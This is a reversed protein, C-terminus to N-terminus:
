EQFRISDSVIKWVNNVSTLTFNQMFTTAKNHQYKSSGSVTVIITLKGPTLQDILPQCDLTEPVHESSPLNEFFKVIETSGTISNGNWVLVATDMYLKSVLHRKKDFTEYYLKSFEEAALCAQDVKLKFDADESSVAM